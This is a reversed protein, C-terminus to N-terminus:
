IYTNKAYHYLSTRHKQLLAAAYGKHLNNNLIYGSYEHLFKKHSPSKYRDMLDDRTLSYKDLLQSFVRDITNTSSSSCTTDRVRDSNYEHTKNMRNFDVELTSGFRDRYERQVNKVWAIQEANM